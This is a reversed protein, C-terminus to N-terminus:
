PCFFGIGSQLNNSHSLKVCKTLNTNKIPRTTLFLFYLATFYLFAHFLCRVFMSSIDPVFFDKGDIFHTVSYGFRIVKLRRSLTSDHLKKERRDAGEFGIIRRCLHESGSPRCIKGCRATKGTATVILDPHFIIFHRTSKSRGFFFDASRFYVGSDLATHIIKIFVRSPYFEDRLKVRFPLPFLAARARDSGSGNKGFIKLAYNISFLLRFVPVPM